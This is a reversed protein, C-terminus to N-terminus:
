AHQVHHIADTAYEIPHPETTILILVTAKVYTKLLCAGLQPRVFHRVDVIRPMPLNIQLYVHQLAVVMLIRQHFNTFDKAKSLVLAAIQLLALQVLEVHPIM